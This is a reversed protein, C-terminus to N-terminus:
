KQGTHVPEEAEDKGYDCNSFSNHEYILHLVPYEVFLEDARPLSQNIQHM